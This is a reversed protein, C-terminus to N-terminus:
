GAQQLPPRSTSALTTPGAESLAVAQAPCTLRHPRLWSGETHAVTTGLIDKVVFGVAVSGALLYSGEDHEDPDLVVAHGDTTWGIRVAAGCADCTAMAM